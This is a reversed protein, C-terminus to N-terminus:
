GREGSRQTVPPENTSLATWRSTANCNSTLTVAQGTRFASTYPWCESVGAGTELCISQGQVAWRAPTERGSASVIRAAGGADFYVTNMVGNTEVQVAHGTIENGPVWQAAAGSLPMITLCVGGLAVALSTKKM